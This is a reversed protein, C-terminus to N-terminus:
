VERLQFEITDNKLNIKKGMIKFSDNPNITLTYQGLPWSFEGWKTTSQGWRPIGAEDTAIYITPYDVSVRDKLNLALTDFTIPTELRFERKAVSFDDRIEDLINAIKSTSSDSILETGIQRKRVGYNLISSSSQATLNTDPWLLFNFIKNTGDRYDAINVINEIGNISAQGYFTFQSTPTADRSQVYLVNNEIYLVSSAALLLNKSTLAEKVTTEELSTKDDIAEDVACSINSASVTVYNTLATQNLCTYIVDSFLDGNSISAYPTEISEILSDYGSVRFEIFQDQISSTSSAETLLGEFITQENGIQYAFCNFFGALLPKPEPSWTVKVISNIRKDRFISKSSDADGYRGHDNRLRVRFGSNKFIGIDYTSNDLSQSISGAEIVDDSIDIFDDAYVGASVFPKIYVRFRSM